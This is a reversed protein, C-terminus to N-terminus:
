KPPNQILQFLGTIGYTALTFKATESARRKNAESLNNYENQIDSLKEAFVAWFKDYKEQETM